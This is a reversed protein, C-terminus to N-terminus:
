ILTAIRKRQIHTSFLRSSAKANHHVTTAIRKRQIHTSFSMGAYRSSATPQRLGSESSIPQFAKQMAACSQCSETAIRKRQIHTSFCSMSKEDGMTTRDCDAKAPYPNFLILFKLDATPASTDCDAKAPYPNFLKIWNKFLIIYNTAIRKRQIHTSFDPLYRMASCEDSLRLGSESSIPQFTM